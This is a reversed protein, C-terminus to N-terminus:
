DYHLFLNNNYKNTNKKKSLILKTKLYFGVWHYKSVYNLEM